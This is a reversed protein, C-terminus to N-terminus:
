VPKRQHIARREEPTKGSVDQKGSGGGSRGIGFKQTRDDVSPTGLEAAQPPDGFMARSGMAVARMSSRIRSSFASNVMTVWAMCWAERTLSMM